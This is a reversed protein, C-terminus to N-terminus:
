DFFKKQASPNANKLIRAILESTGWKSYIDSSPYFGHYLQFRVADKIKESNYDVDMVNGAKLRGQQRTGINVVPLGLHSSEKVGASSNGVLCSSKKLLNIFKEPSLHTIFRMKHNSFKERFVRIVHSIDDTGADTNPWFWIAQVGLEYVAKLTQKINEMNKEGTTVPHQIVVVFQKSFDIVSGVGEKNIFSFDNIELINNIIEVDLSGVNYVHEPNEGMRLIRNKSIENTALHIHALKTIAHRVSEDITGTIDGGEIHVIVKNLYAASVAAALIEFRDGHLVVMEPNLRQLTTTFELMTLGATKAMTINDGGEISTYLRDVSFFGKNELCEVVEGYKRLLASGGVVVQIEFFDDDKLFDMLKESRAYQARSTVVFCVKKRKNILSDKEDAEKKNELILKLKSINNDLGNKDDYWGDNVFVCENYIQYLKETLRTGVNDEQESRRIFPWYEKPLKVYLVFRKRMIILEDETLSDFHLAPKSPDYIKEKKPDYFNNKIAVDRLETKEFPFFFGMHPVQPEAEKNLEVTKMYTERTEFPIGLMNFAVTRIGAKKLLHFARVIEEKTDKRHLMEKRLRSDGTEIGLSVSVCNMKKLIIVGKETLFKSNTMCTFPLKLETSYLESLEELYDQPKVLFDEDHFKYFEINYKNALFKLENIIRKPSYRQPKFGGCLNHYFDNICYTCNNPCGWSIMHDGGRYIRGNYPKYCLRKDFIDWDLYPLSDFDTFLPFLENKIISSGKKYWINKINHVSRKNELAEIFKPFAVLGEGVCVFDVSDFSLVREPEVTAGKGGWIVIVNKNWKKVSNSLDKAIGIEDSIVTFGVVDPRFDKLVNLLAKDVDVKKKELNLSSLDVPKHMKAVTTSESITTFGFDVFSTDFCKVEHGEKKLIASFLSIGIPKYFPDDKNPWVFLIKMNNLAFAVCVM